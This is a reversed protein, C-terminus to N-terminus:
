LNLHSSILNNITVNLKYNQNNLFERTKQSGNYWHIGITNEKIKELDNKEFLIDMQNWRYPYVDSMDLNAFHLEPMVKLIGMLNGFLSPYLLNTASMYEKPNFNKSIQKLLLNYFKSNPAGFLLGTSFYKQKDDVYRGDYYCIIAEITNFDGRIIKGHLNLHNMPRIFLIDMDIWVGGEKSLIYYTVYNSKFVEPVDNRFGIKVLDIKVIQIGLQYIENTWDKGTYKTKHEGSKWTNVGKYEIEPQYLVLEWDSNLMKFSKLTLYHLYSMPGAWYTFARKPIRPYQWGQDKNLITM